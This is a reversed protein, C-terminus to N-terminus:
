MHYPVSSKLTMRFLRSWLCICTLLILRSIQTFSLCIAEDHRLLSNEFVLVSIFQKTYAKSGSLYGRQPTHGCNWGLRRSDTWGVAVPRARANRKVITVAVSLKHSPTRATHQVEPYLSLLAFCIVGAAAM